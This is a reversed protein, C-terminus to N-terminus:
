GFYGGYVGSPAPTSPSGGGGYKDFMSVGSGLLTAGAAFRSARKAQQGEFRTLAGGYELQRARTEGDSLAMLANYETEAAIDSQIGTATVDSADGGSAALRAQARSAVLDGKRRENVMDRTAIARQQKAAAEYQKAQAKAAANAANGGMITGAAGVLSGVVQAVMLAQAM